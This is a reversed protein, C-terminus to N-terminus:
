TSDQGDRMGRLEEFQFVLDLLQEQLKDAKYEAEHVRHWYKALLLDTESELGEELHQIRRWQSAALKELSKRDMTEYM